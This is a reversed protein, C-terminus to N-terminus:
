CDILSSSSVMEQDVYRNAMIGKEQMQQIYKYAASADGQQYCYEILQAYVDGARVANEAGPNTLLQQCIRVMEQPQSQALQRAEVFRDTFHKKQQLMQIRNERDDTNAKSVYKIAEELAKSAREYDRYEDVEVSACADYFGALHNYSKAKTYFSIIKKMLNPNNHWDATQLYNATLIYIEPSRANDTFKIITETDGQRILCKIAKLKEGIQMYLTSALGFNGQRKANKAITKLM